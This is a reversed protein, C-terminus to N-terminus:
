AGFVGGNSSQAARRLNDMIQEFSRSDGASTGSGQGTGMNMLEMSAPPAEPKPAPAPEPTAAPQAQAARQLGHATQVMKVAVAPDIKNIPSILQCLMDFAEPVNVIEPATNVLWKEFDAVREDMIREESAAVVQQLENFNQEIKTREEQLKALETSHATKMEETNNAYEARLAEVAAAHTLKLQELEKQKDELPDIDGHLWKQVRIEQARVEEARSELAKRREANDQFAKTYGRQWNRYKTELGNLLGDRVNQDLSQYWDASKVGELEGNWDIVAPSESGTDASAEPASAEVPASSEVPASEAAPAAETAAAEVTESM